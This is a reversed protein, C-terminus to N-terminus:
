VAALYNAGDIRAIASPSPYSWSIPQEARVGVLDNQYLSILTGAAGTPTDSMELSAYRSFDVTAEIAPSVGLKAGDLLVLQAGAGATAITALGAVIGGRTTVNTSSPGTAGNLQLATLNKASMILTTTANIVGGSAVFASLLAKLDAVPDGTSATASVGNTVSAPLVGEVGARTPDLFLEDIKLALAAVLLDRVTALGAASTGRVTEETLTTIVAARSPPLHDTGLVGAIVPKPGAGAWGGAPTITATVYRTNMPVTRAGAIRGPAASETVIAAFATEAPTALPQGWSGAAGSAPPVAARRLIKELMAANASNPYRARFLEVATLPAGPSSM